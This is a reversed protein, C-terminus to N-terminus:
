GPESITLNSDSKSMKSMKVDQCRESRRREETKPEITLIDPEVVLHPDEGLDLIPWRWGIDVVPADISDCSNGSRCSDHDSTHIKQIVREISFM